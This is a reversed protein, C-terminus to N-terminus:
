NDAITISETPFIAQLDALAPENSAYWGDPAEISYRQSTSAISQDSEQAWVGAIPLVIALMAALMVIRKM